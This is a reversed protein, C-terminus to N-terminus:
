EFVELCAYKCDDAGSCNEMILINTVGDSTLSDYDLSTSLYDIYDSFTANIGSTDIEKNKVKDKNVYYVIDGTIDNKSDITLESLKNDRINGLEYLTAVDYYDIRKNYIAIIKNYSTYFGVLTVLIISAVVVVEAMMFGKNNM